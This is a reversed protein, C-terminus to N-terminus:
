ASRRKVVTLLKQFAADCRKKSEPDALAREQAEIEALPQRAVQAHRMQIARDRVEGPTPFFRAKKLVEILAMQGYQYPVDVM